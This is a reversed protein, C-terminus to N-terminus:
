RALANKFPNEAFAAYIYIGGNTNYAADTNRIKFGNSLGDFSAFTGEANVLNPYLEYQEVNNIDRSTDLIRWNATSDTRKIMIWRSRMGTYVFPGDVSGNGTYSGFASYGPIAAFCYAILKQSTSTSLANGVLSFVTSTPATNGWTGAGTVVASSLDLM